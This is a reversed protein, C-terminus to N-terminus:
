STENQEDEDDDRILRWSEFFGKKSGDLYSKEM